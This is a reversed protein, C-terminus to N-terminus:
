LLASGKARRDYPAVYILSIELGGKSSNVRSLKSITIDYSIGLSYNLYSFRGILIFSDGLRNLLGLSASTELMKGSTKGESLQYKVSCGYTVENAPGQKSILLEPFFTLEMRQTKIDGIAHMTIRRHLNHNENAPYFNLETPQVHYVSIGANAGFYRNYRYDLLVGTAFDMYYFQNDYPPEGSSITSNYDGDWQNDWTLKEFSFGRQSFGSLFGVSLAFNQNLLKHYSASLSLQTIGLGATGAKDSYASIGVGVRDKPFRKMFIPRDYSAMFTKYIGGGNNISSWQDKYNLIARHTGKYFATNAPNVAMPVANNQSFHLDQSVAVNCVIILILINILNKM